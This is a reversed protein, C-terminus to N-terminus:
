SLAQTLVDSLVPVKMNTDRHVPRLVAHSSAGEHKLRRFHQLPHDREVRRKFGVGFSFYHVRTTTKEQTSAGGGREHAREERSAAAEAIHGGKDNGMKAPQM